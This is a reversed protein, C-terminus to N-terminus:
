SRCYDPYRIKIAEWFYRAYGCCFLDDATYRRCERLQDDGEFDYISPTGGNYLNFGLRIVKASGSTIWGEQLCKPKLDGSRFDYIRNINKRTDGSIGLCYMLAQHYEDQYRCRQLNYYFFKEHEQDKFIIAMEDRRKVRLIGQCKVGGEVYDGNVVDHKM